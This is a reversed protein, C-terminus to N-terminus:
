VVRRLSRTVPPPIQSRQNLVPMSYRVLRKGAYTRLGPLDVLVTADNMSRVEDATMLERAQEGEGVTNTTTKEFVSKESVARTQRPRILTTKGLRASAGEVAEQGALSLAVRVRCNDILRRAGEKGYVYLDAESQVMLVLQVGFGRIEGIGRVLAPIVGLSAFEDLMYVTDFKREVQHHNLLINLMLRALPRLVDSYKFPFTLYLTLPATGQSLASPEFDSGSIAEAVLPMRCFKLANLCTTFASTLTKGDDKLRALAGKLEGAVAPLGACIMDVVSKQAQTGGILRSVGPLSRDIGTRNHLVFLIGAALLPQASESYFFSSDREDKVAGCLVNAIREAETVENVDGVPITLLPNFRASGREMPAFRRIHNYVSRYGASQRYLEGDKADLVVYSRGVDRLLSPLVISEGKGGGTPGEVLVHFWKTAIIAAAIIVSWGPRGDPGCAPEVEATDEMCLTVGSSEHGKARVEETTAFRASGHSTSEKTYKYPEGANSALAVAVVGVVLIVCAHVPSPHLLWPWHWGNSLMTSEWVAPFAVHASLLVCGALAAPLGFLMAFFSGLAKM